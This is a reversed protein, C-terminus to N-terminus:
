RCRPTPPAPRGCRTCSTCPKPQSCSMEIGWTEPIDGFLKKYGNVFNVGDEASGQTHSTEPIHHLYEGLFTDCFAHYQPTFLIFQHWVADVKNSMMGLPLGNAFRSLAVYKKFEKFANQYEEHNQFEGDTLLKEELYPAEFSDLRDIFEKDRTSLKSYANTRVNLTRRISATGEENDVIAQLSM